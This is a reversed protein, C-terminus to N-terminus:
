YIGWLVSKGPPLKWVACHLYGLAAYNSLLAIKEAASLSDPGHELAKDVLTIIRAKEKQRLLSFHLAFVHPVVVARVFGSHCKNSLLSYRKQKAKLNKELSLLEAAPTIDVPTLFLGLKKAGEGLSVRSSWVSLPISLVLGAVIPSMWVFFVPNVLYILAGWGIGLATGKWHFRLAELWSTGKDDRNQTKWGWSIGCLAGVVFFSHFLMRVPALFTSVVVELLVSSILAPIGGFLKAGGKYIVFCLSFLKPLFLLTLTGSFLTLAWNPLYQPWEPFLTYEEPFYVPVIFLEAVAQASSALLFLFWLLASVYSMIGNIFLARHIPFFGRAFVLRSHQLNGQCWRRDRILEDILSPPTQEFSGDLDYALWVGYGAKRMLAAEVFDHSLIEGGLPARGSLVPLQCHSIFPEMRIIANHGWYQADGLQWYQLGAAFIPGYLHNAFQQVRAILSRSKIAKPPTQLIGLTPHEEMSQVMRALTTGSMISDADFVVMYKYHAGWRRCFDAVNGSKRKVNRRRRRYFIRGFADEGQCLAYWAEEENIWADPETSDSLIFVDFSDELGLAKISQYVTAIGAAVSHADENYVPFLLATKAEKPICYEADFPRTRIFKDCRRILLLLGAISSWFGVSIWLFLLSFLATIILRLIPEGGSPLLTYMINSAIVSPFFILALLLLRRKRAATFWSTEPLCNFDRAAENDPPSAPESDASQNCPQNGPQATDPQTDALLADVPAEPLRSQEQPQDEQLQVYQPGQAQYIKQDSQSDKATVCPEAPLEASCPPTASFHEDPQPLKREQETKPLWFCLQTGGQKMNGWLQSGFSKGKRKCAAWLPFLELRSSIMRTRKVPPACLKCAEAYINGEQGLRGQEATYGNIGREHLLTYLTDIVAAFAEDAEQQATGSIEAKSAPRENGAGEAGKLTQAPHLNQAGQAKASAGQAKVPASTKHAPAFGSRRLSELAVEVGSVPDIEMGQVYLLVRSCVQANIISYNFKNM